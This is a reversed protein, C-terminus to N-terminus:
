LVLPAKFYAKGPHIDAFGIKGVMSLYDFRALRGFRRVAVMSQYLIDFTAESNNGAARSAEDFRIHHQPPDGVWRVYSAVVSGTGGETWGALSEYKRHNGFGHRQNSPILQSRHVDLWNRFEDINSVVRRWTWLEGSGCAGYIERVYRWRAKRHWGFHTRLFILWFAEDDNGARHRIIAAKLPNFWYVNSPNAAEPSLDISRIRELYMNARSSDILQSILNERRPPTFGPLSGQEAEYADFGSALRDALQQQWRTVM